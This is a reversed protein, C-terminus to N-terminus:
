VGREEAEEGKRVGLVKGGAPGCLIHTSYSKETEKDRETQSQRHTTRATLAETSEYFDNLRQM